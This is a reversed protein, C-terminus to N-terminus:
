QASIDIVCSGQDSLTACEGANREEIVQLIVDRIQLRSFDVMM